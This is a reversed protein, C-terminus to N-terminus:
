TRTSRRRQRACRPCGADELVEAVIKAMSFPEFAVPLGFTQDYQTMTVVRLKPRDKVDFGDFGPQSLASVIQRM